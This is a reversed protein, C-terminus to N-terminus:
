GIFYVIAKIILITTETHTVFVLIFENRVVQVFSAIWMRTAFYHYSSRLTYLANTMSYYMELSFPLYVFTFDGKCIVSIKFFLGQKFFVFFDFISRKTANNHALFMFNVVHVYCCGNMLYFQCFGNRKCLHRGWM